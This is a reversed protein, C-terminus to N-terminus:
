RPPPPTARPLLLTLLTATPTSRTGATTPRPTSTCRPTTAGAPAAHGPAAPPGPQLRAGRRHRLPLPHPPTVAFSVTMPRGPRPGHARGVTPARASRPAPRDPRVTGTPLPHRDGPRHVRPPDLPGPRGAARRHHDGGARGAGRGTGDPRAPGARCADCGRWGTPWRRRRSGAVAGGPPRLPRRRAPPGLDHALADLQFRLSRPNGADLLLLGVVAGLEPDSRYRRRYAILSASQALLAELLSPRCTAAAGGRRADLAARRAPRPGARGTARRRAPVLRSRAGDDGPGPRGGRGPRGAPARADRPRGPRHGGDLSDAADASDQVAQLLEPSVLDSVAAASDVLGRRAARLGFAADEDVLAAAATQRAGRLPRPDIRVGATLRDLAAVLSAVWAPEEELDRGPAAVVQVLRVVAEAREAYRGLWYLSEGARSPLSDAFDVQDLGVLRARRAPRRRRPPWCGPTRPRRGVRAPRPRRGPPGSGTAAGGALVQTLGGPAVVVGSAEVLGFARTVTPARRLRGDVFAPVTRPEVPEIAVWGRPEAEVRARVLALDDATMRRTDLAQGGEVPSLVIEGLRDLARRRGEPEGCWWSPPGPLRLEGGLLARAVAPLFAELAPNALWGAGLPNALAVRGRLSAALLGPTGQGSRQTSTSRIACARRAAAAARRPGAGARGAFAPVVDGRRM